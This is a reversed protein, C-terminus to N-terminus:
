CGGLTAFLTPSLKKQKKASLSKFSHQLAQTFPVFSQSKKVSVKVSETASSSAADGKAQPNETKERCILAYDIEPDLSLLM